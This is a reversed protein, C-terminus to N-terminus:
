WYCCALPSIYTPVYIRLNWCRTAASHGGIPESRANAGIIYITLDTQIYWPMPLLRGYDASSRVAVQMCYICLM